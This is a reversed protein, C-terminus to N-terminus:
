PRLVEQTPHSSATLLSRKIDIPNLQQSHSKTIKGELICHLNKRKSIFNKFTKKKDNEAGFCLSFFKKFLLNKMAKRRNKAM